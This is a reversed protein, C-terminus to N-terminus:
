SVREGSLEAVELMEAMEEANYICLAPVVTIKTDFGRAVSYRYVKDLDMKRIKWAVDVVPIDFLMFSLEPSDEEPKKVISIIEQLPLGHIYLEGDLIDTDLENFLELFPDVLYAPTLYPKGGRSTLIVEGEILRAFCRVGDIKVSVDLPFVILSPRTAGNSALMPLSNGIAGADDVTERYGKDKQSKVKSILELAAQSEATTENSRGLNKPTCITMKVQM